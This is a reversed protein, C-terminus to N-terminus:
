PWIEGEANIGNLFPTIRAVDKALYPIVFVRNMGGACFLVNELQEKSLPQESLVYYFRCDVFQRLITMRCKSAYHIQSWAASKAAGHIMKCQIGESSFTVRSSAHFLFPLIATITYFQGCLLLLLLACSKMVSQHEVISHYLLIVLLISFMEFLLLFIVNLLLLHSDSFRSFPKSAPDMEKCAEEGPKEM